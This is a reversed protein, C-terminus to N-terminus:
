RIKNATGWILWNASCNAGCSVLHKCDDHWRTVFQMAVIEGSRGIDGKMAWRRWVSGFLLGCNDFVTWCQGVVGMSAWSRWCQSSRDGLLTSNWNNFCTTNRKLYKQTFQRVKKSWLLRIQQDDGHVNWEGLRSLSLLMYLALPSIIQRIM